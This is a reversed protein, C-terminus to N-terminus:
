RVTCEKFGKYARYLLVSGIGKLIISPIWAATKGIHKYTKWYAVCGVLGIISGYLLNNRFKPCYKWKEILQTIPKPKIIQTPM